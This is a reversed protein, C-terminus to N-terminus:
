IIYITKQIEHKLTLMNTVSKDLLFIFYKVASYITTILANLRRLLYFSIPQKCGYYFCSTHYKNYM